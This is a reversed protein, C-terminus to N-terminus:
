WRWCYTLATAAPQRVHERDVELTWEQSGTGEPVRDRATDLCARRGPSRVCRCASGRQAAFTWHQPGDALRM